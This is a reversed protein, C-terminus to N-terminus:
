AHHLRRVAGLLLGLGLEIVHESNWLPLGLARDPLGRLECYFFNQYADQSEHWGNSTQARQYSANQKHIAQLLNSAYATLQCLLPRLGMDCRRVDVTAVKPDTHHPAPQRNQKPNLNRHTNQESLECLSAIHRM